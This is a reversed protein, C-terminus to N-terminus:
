TSFWTTPFKSLRAREIIIMFKVSVRRKNKKEIEKKKFRSM